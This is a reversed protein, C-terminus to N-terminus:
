KTNGSTPSVDCNYLAPMEQQSHLQWRDMSYFRSCKIVEAKPQVTALTM